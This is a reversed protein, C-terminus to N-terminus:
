SIHCYSIGSFIIDNFISDDFEYDNEYDYDNEYNYDYHYHYSVIYYKHTTSSNIKKNMM